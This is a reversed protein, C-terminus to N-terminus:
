GGPTPVAEVVLAGAPLLAGAGFKYVAQWPQYQTRTTDSFLPSGARTVTRQVAVDAGPYEWEVQKIEGAELDAAPEYRAVDPKSVNTVLAPAVKTEREDNTSYFRYTVMQQAVDVESDVLLWADRDNRFRFDAVPSFVTADLGPGPSNPGQEYYGVRYAHSNREIIPYGAFYAARFATTSVQCIGGGVGQVTRGAFIVLAEAFGKDLSVDGLANNFSFEAGPAVLVGRANEAGALINQIRAQSSGRFHTTAEAVLQKIGLDAANTSGSVPPQLADFELAIRHQALPLGANIAALTRDINLARGPAGPKLEQLVQQEVDFAFRADRPAVGTHTAAYELFARLSDQQLGVAFTASGDAQEVRQLVLMEILMKQDLTWANSDGARPDAIFLVLPESVIREALAAQLTADGIAPKFENVALQIDAGTFTTLPVVLQASAARVDVTRGLQGPTVQVRGDVVSLTAERPESQTELALQAIFAETRNQDLVIVPALRVGAYFGQWHSHLDTLLDGSRGFAHATQVPAVLDVSVGLQAPTARWVAGAARLTVAEAQLFDLQRSLRELAGNSTLGGVNVGWVSVGPYIRDYYAVELVGVGLGLATLGLLGVCTTTFVFRWFGSM